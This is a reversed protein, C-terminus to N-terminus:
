QASVKREETREKKHDKLLMDAEHDIDNEIRAKEMLAFVESEAAYIAEEPSNFCEHIVNFPSSPNDGEELIRYRAEWMGVNVKQVRMDINVCVRMETPFRKKGCTVIRYEHWHWLRDSVAKSVIPQKKPRGIKKPADKVPSKM